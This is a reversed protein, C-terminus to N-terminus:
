WWWMVQNGAALGSIFFATLAAAEASTTVTFAPNTENMQEYALALGHNANEADWVETQGSTFSAGGSGGNICFNVCIGSVGVTGTMTVTISGDSEEASDVKLTPATDAANNFAISNGRVVSVGFSVTQTGQPVNSGLWFAHGWRDPDAGATGGFSSGFGTMTVGGYTPASPPTSSSTLICVVVYNITGVPTHSWGTSNLVGAGVSDYTVAM